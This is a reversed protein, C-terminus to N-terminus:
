RLSQFHSFLSTLAIRMHIAPSVASGTTSNFFFLYDTRTSASSIGRDRRSERLWIETAKHVSRQIRPFLRSGRRRRIRERGPWRALALDLLNKSECRLAGLTMLSEHLICADPPLTNTM